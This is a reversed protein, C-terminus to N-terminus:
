CFDVLQCIELLKDYVSIEQRHRRIAVVCYVNLFLCMYNFLKDGHRHYLTSFHKPVHSCLIAGSYINPDLM